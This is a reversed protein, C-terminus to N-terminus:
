RGGNNEKAWKRWGNALLILLAALMLPGGVLHTVLLRAPHVAGDTDHDLARPRLWIALWMLWMSLYASGLWIALAVLPTM